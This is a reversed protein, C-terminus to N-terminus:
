RSVNLVHLCILPVPTAIMMMPPTSSVDPMIHPLLPSIGERAKMALANLIELAAVRCRWDNDHSIARILAPCVLHLCLPSLSQSLHSVMQSSLDRFVQVKHGQLLLIDFLLHVVVPEIDHEITSQLSALSRLAMENTLGGVGGSRMTDVIRSVILSGELSIVGYRRTIHALEAPSFTFQDETRQSQQATLNMDAIAATLDDTNDLFANLIRMRSEQGRAFFKSMVGYDIKNLDKSPLAPSTSNPRKVAAVGPVFAPAAMSLPSPSLLSPKPKQLLAAAQAAAQEKRERQGKGMIFYQSHSLKFLSYSNNRELM